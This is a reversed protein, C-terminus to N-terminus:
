GELPTVAMARYFPELEDFRTNWSMPWEASERGALHAALDELHSQWGCGYAWLLDPSMGRKTLTFTTREGDAALDATVTQENGVEEWTTVSLCERPLCTDIRGRGDWGSSPVFATFEGGLRLDGEITGYWHALRDPDTLASWVADVDSEFRTKLFVVGVGGDDHLTAEVAHERNDSV